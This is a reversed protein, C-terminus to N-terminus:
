TLVGVHGIISPSAVFGASGCAWRNVAETFARRSSPADSGVGMCAVGGVQVYHRPPPWAPVGVHLATVLAAAGHRQWGVILPMIDRGAQFVVAVLKPRLWFTSPRGEEEDGGVVAWVGNVM